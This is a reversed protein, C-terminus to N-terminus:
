NSCVIAAKGWVVSSSLPQCVLCSRITFTHLWLINIHLPVNVPFLAQVSLLSERPLYVNKKKKKKELLSAFSLSAFHTIPCLALFIPLSILSRLLIFSLATYPFLSYAQHALMKCVDILGRNRSVM